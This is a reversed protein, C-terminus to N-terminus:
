KQFNRNKLDIKSIKIKENNKFCMIKIIKM